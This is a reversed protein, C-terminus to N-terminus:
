KPQLLYGFIVVLGLFQFLANQGLVIAARLQYFSLVVCMLLTALYAWRKAGWLGWGVLLLYAAYLLYVYWPALNTGQIPLIIAALLMVGGALFLLLALAYVGRPLKQTSKSSETMLVRNDKIM